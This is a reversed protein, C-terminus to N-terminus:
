LPHDAIAITHLNSDYQCRAIVVEHAAHRAPGARAPNPPSEGTKVATKGHRTEHRM